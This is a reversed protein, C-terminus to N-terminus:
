AAWEIKVRTLDVGRGRRTSKNIVLSEITARYVLLRDAADLTPWATRVDHVDPLDAPATDIAAREGIWRAKAEAYEEPEIAGDLVMNWMRALREGVDADGAQKDGTTARISNWTVQDLLDLVAATVAAETDDYGIGNLCSLNKCLLRGMSNTGSKTKWKDVHHRMPSGCHCRAIPVLPWKLQNSGGIYDRKLDSFIARVRNWLERDLIPEWDGPILEAADLQQVGGSRPIVSDSVAAMGIMTPSQLAVRLGVHTVKVGSENLTRMASRVSAGDAIARAADVVLPAVAPDPVLKNPEPKIYGLAAPGAPVAGSLRRHRHWETARDSKQASELEALAAVMTLMTRGVPTSTDFQETVSAFEAGNAELENVFTLLDLTNRAARDVKWIVFANAAGSAVLDMAERFGPRSKRSSKFASRGPETIVKVLEWGRAAVYGEIAARQSDTSTENERDRSIRVYGVVRRPTDAVTRASSAM